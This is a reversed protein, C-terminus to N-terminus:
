KKNMQNLLEQRINELEEPTTQLEKQKKEEIEKDDEIRFLSRSNQPKDERKIYPNGAIEAFTLERM